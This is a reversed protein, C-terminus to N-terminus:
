SLGERFVRMLKRQFDPTGERLVRLFKPLGENLKIIRKANLIIRFCLGYSELCINLIEENQSKGNMSVVFLELLLM